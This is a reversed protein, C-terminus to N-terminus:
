TLGLFVQEGAGVLRGDDVQEFSRVVRGGTGAAISQPLNDRDEHFKLHRDGVQARGRPLAQTIRGFFV